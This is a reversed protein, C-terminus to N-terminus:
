LPLIVDRAVTIVICVDVIMDYCIMDMTKVVTDDDNRLKSFIGSGSAQQSANGGWM